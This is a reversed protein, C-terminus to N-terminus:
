KISPKSQSQEDCKTSIAINWQPHLPRFFFHGYLFSVNASSPNVNLLSLYDSKILTTKVTTLHFNILWVPANISFPLFSGTEAYGISMEKDLRSAALGFEREGILFIWPASFFWFVVDWKSDLRTASGGAMRWGCNRREREREILLQDISGGGNALYRGLM